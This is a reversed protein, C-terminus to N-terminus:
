KIEGRKTLLVEAMLLDEPTTIKINSYGGMIVQPPHGIAEMIAADDTIGKSIEGKYGEKLLKVKFTQPTQVAWLKVRDLTTEVIGDKVLKITDKVPVAAIAGGKEKAVAISEKIIDTTVFPRAGDHIVVIECKEPLAKLGNFVSHFREEGGIVIAKIKGYGYKELIKEQILHAENEAIVVIVGDIDHCEEFVQLTHALIPKGQVEIYQKNIEAEMRRGRGAAVIIAYTEKNDM